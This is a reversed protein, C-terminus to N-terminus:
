RGSADSVPNIFFIERYLRSASLTLAAQWDHAHAVDPLYDPVIGDVILQAAKGLAAFRRWNDNWDAGNADGYPGGGREYLHPADLALIDLGDAEGAVINAPGGFLDDISAVVAAEQLKQMVAPYGPVLSRMEVGHPKLAAPLAGAVDALGGTKILPYIESAVSLVKM